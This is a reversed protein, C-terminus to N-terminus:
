MHLHVEKMRLTFNFSRTVKSADFAVEQTVLTPGYQYPITVRAAAAPLVM